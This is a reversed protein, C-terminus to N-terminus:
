LLLTSVYAQQLDVDHLHGGREDAVAHHIFRLWGSIKILINRRIDRRVAQILAGIGAADVRKQLHQALVEAFLSELMGAAHRLQGHLKRAPMACVRVAGIYRPKQM